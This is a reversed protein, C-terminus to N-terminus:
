LRVTSELSDPDDEAGGQGTYMTWRVVYGTSAESLVFAKYGYKDPKKPNYMKLTSRGKFAITMEELSLEKTPSYVTKFRPLIEDLILCVKFLHDHGPKGRETRNDNNVFHLFTLIIQFRNRSMVKNFGPTETLWFRTRYDTLESKNVLGMSLHLSIFVKMESVTVDYWDRFRSKPGLETSNLFQQAYRNTKSVLIEWFNDSM